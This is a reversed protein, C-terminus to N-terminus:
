SHSAIRRNLVVLRFPLCRSAKAHVRGIDLYCLERWLDSGTVIDAPREFAKERCYLAILEVHFRM